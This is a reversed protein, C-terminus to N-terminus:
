QVVKYYQKRNNSVSVDLDLCLRSKLVSVSEVSTDPLAPWTYLGNKEEVMFNLFLTADDYINDVRCVVDHGNWNAWFCDSVAVDPLTFTNYVAFNGVNVLTVTDNQRGSIPMLPTFHNATWHNDDMDTRASTWMVFCAPAGSSTRPVLTRNNM